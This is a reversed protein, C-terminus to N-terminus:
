LKEACLKEIIEPYHRHELKHIRQALSDPTDTSLVLCEAQSIIDGEDYNENVYHITIGSKSEQNEIVAKHVNDGYMGKGGYAPLLAPHINIIKNKYSSVIAQPVLWMFGALIILDYNKSQLEDSFEQSLFDAKNFVTTSIDFKKGREIVYANKNNTYIRSVEVDPNSHLHRIIAEANSGNGSAFIALKLKAM